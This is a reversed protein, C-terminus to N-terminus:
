IFTRELHNNKISVELVAHLFFLNMLSSWFLTLLVILILVVACRTVLPFQM